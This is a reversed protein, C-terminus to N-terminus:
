TDGKQIPYESSMFSIGTATNAKLEGLAVKLLKKENESFDGIPFM